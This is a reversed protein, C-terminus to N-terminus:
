QSKAAGSAAAKNAPAAAAGAAPVITATKISDLKPFNKDLYAKGENTIEGQKSTPAEGYGSYFSKVVDMGSTVEGFPPFGMSDLRSNDALNIFVQTTRTNPGGMAFTIFGPKNSAKIPDDKINADTWAKNV